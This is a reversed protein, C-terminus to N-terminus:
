NYNTLVLKQRGEEEHFKKISELNKIVYLSLYSKKCSTFAVMCPAVNNGAVSPLTNYAVHQVFCFALLM